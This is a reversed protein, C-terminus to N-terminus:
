PLGAILQRLKAKKKRDPAPPLLVFSVHIKDGTRQATMNAKSLRIDACRLIHLIHTIFQGDDLFQPASQRSAKILWVPHHPSPKAATRVKYGAVEFRFRLRVATSLDGSPDDPFAVEKAEYRDAAEWEDTEAVPLFRSTSLKM